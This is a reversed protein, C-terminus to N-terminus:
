RGLFEEDENYMTIAIFLETKRRPEYLMQRLTYGESVFDNPDCTAATYRTLLLRDKDEIFAVM